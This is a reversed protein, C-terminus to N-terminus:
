KKHRKRPHRERRHKGRKVVKKKAAPKLKVAAARAPTTSAVPVGPPAPAANSATLCDPLPDEYFAAMVDHADPSHPKGSLHGYEHVVVTCFKQWDFDMGTNFEIRCDGNLDANDYSSKPNTWTSTANIQSALPTWLVTVQGGCPDVGWHQKAIAQATQMPQSGVAFAQSPNLVVDAQASAPFAACVALIAILRRCTV